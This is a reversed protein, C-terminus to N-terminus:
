LEGGWLNRVKAFGNPQSVASIFGGAFRRATRGEDPHVRVYPTIERTETLKIM